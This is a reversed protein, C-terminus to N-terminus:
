STVQKVTESPKISEIKKFKNIRLAHTATYIVPLVKMIFLLLPM